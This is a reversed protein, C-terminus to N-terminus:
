VGVEVLPINGAEVKARTQPLLDVGRYFAVPLQEHM